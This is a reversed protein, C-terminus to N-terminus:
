CRDWPNPNNDALRRSFFGRAGEAAPELGGDIYM